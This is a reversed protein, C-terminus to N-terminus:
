KRVPIILIAGLVCAAAIVVFAAATSHSIDIARGIVVQGIAAFGYAGADMLGTATGARERGVLEPCLAWYTAQPGYVLFGTIALLIMAIAPHTIPTIALLIAGLAAFVLFFLVVRSRHEPFWRDAILGASLAGVAMGIPLALTIWLGAANANLTSGLFHLPVWSILGYRAISECGISLSALQFPRNKAVQWYRQRSSERAISMPEENLEAPLPAFGDDEPRNRAFALYVAGGLLMLLVPLRFVWRWDLHRIVLICLLYTLTSSFGAALLYMGIAKGRERRPWWDALVRSMAPWATSQAVGNAGWALLALAFSPAFSVTWNLVVSLIAGIAVMRRAGYIDALNGNITQGFGYGVLLAASFFGLATSSLALEIQMGHAAFGFNQRGTYFFLYCFM